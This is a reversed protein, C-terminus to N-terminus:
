HENRFVHDCYSKCSDLIEDKTIVVVGLAKQLELLMVLSMTDRSALLDRITIDALGLKTNVSYSTGVSISSGPMVNPQNAPTADDRIKKYAERLKFRQDDNLRVRCSILNQLNTTTTM